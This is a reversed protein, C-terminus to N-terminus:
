KQRERDFAAQVAAREDDPVLPFTSLVHAFEEPDLGYAIAAVAQLEAHASPLMGSRRALARAGVALRRALRTAALPRPVPIRDIIALSVHTSVRMRVLFNAVYSNLLACLLWQDALSLPTRLCFLTHTTVCGAPVIGAILTMRNSASAVDRFALRHRGFTAAQPLLQAATNLSIRLASRDQHVVFPQVHKGEIVPLGHPARHLHCRDDTANLERGFRVHWGERAGLRPHRAAMSEAIHLDLPHRVDPITLTDGSLRELLAPTLTLPFAADAPQESLGDLAAPDHLGFRCRVARTPRGRTATVLMFRVGRHIPFIGARNEFGVIVDTDCQHLLLHRLPAAGTDLALGHPM